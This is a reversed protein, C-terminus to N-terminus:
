LLSETEVLCQSSDKMRHVLEATNPQLVQDLKVDVGAPGGTTSHSLATMYSINRDVYMDMTNTGHFQPSRTPM